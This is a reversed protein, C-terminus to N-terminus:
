PRSNACTRPPRHPPPPLYARSLHINSIVFGGIIITVLLGFLTGFLTVAFRQNDKENKAIETKLDALATRHDERHEAMSARIAQWDKDYSAKQAKLDGEMRTLRIDVDHLPNPNTPDPM